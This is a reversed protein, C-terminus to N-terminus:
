RVYAGFGLVGGCRQRLCEDITLLGRDTYIFLALGNHARALQRLAALSLRCGSVSLATQAWVQSVPQGGRYRLFLRYASTRCGALARVREFHAIAGCRILGKFLFCASTSDRTVDVKVTLWGRRQALALQLVTATIGARRSVAMKDRILKLLSM